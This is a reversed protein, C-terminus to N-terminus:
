AKLFQASPFWSMMHHMEGIETLQFGLRAYLQQAGINNAQVSLTVPAGTVGAAQQIGRLISSGFGKGRAAPILALDVIRVENSGFDITVRGIPENIKEVIFYMANPFQDGYGQMQAEHQQDILADIFGQEANLMQLDDRTSRFLSAIFPQDSARAPRISIGNDFHGHNGPLM